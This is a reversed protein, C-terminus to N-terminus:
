AVRGKLRATGTGVLATASSMERDREEGIKSVKNIAPTQAKKVAIFGVYHFMM